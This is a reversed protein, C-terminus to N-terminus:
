TSRSAMMSPRGIPVGTASKAGGDRHELEVQLFVAPSGVTGCEKCYTWEPYGAVGLGCEWMKLDPEYVDPVRSRAYWFAWYEFGVISEFDTRHTDKRMGAM